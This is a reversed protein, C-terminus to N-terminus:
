DSAKRGAQEINEEEKSVGERSTQKKEAWDAISRAQGSRQRRPGWQKQTGGGKNRISSASAAAPLRSSTSSPGELVSSHHRGNSQGASFPGSNWEAKLALMDRYSAAATSWHGTSKGVARSGDHRRRRLRQPRRWQSSRRGGM